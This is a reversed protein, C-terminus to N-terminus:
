SKRKLWLTMMGQRGYDEIGTINWREGRVEIEHTPDIDPWRRITVKCQMEAYTQHATVMEVGRLPDVKCWLPSGSPKEWSYVPDGYDDYTLVREYFQCPTDLTGANNM